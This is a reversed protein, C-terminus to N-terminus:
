RVVMVATLAERLVCALGHDRALAMGRDLAARAQALEGLRGLAEGDVVLAAALAAVWPIREVAGLLPALVARAREPQRAALWARAISLYVEYGLIWADGAPLRAGALLRDAEALVAPSRTAEALPGLCHLLYAEAGDKEATAHGREFLEIAEARSGAAMLTTGLETCVFASAWSHDNAQSLQLARRGLSIADDRGLLRALRGLHAVYKAASHPYGSRRNIEIASEMAATARAWDGAALPVFASEFVAHQLRFPDGQRRLLPDLEELV